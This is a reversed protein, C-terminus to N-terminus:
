IIPSCPSRMIRIVKLNRTLFINESNRFRAILKFSMVLVMITLVAMVIYFLSKIVLFYRPSQYNVDAM